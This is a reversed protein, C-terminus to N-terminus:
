EGQGRLARLQRLALGAVILWSLITMSGGVPALMAPALISGFSNAAITGSFLSVALLMLGATWLWVRSGLALSLGALALAAAAHIMLMTAATALAPTQVKHAAVAALAVGAAGALGGLACIAFPAVSAVGKTISQNTQSV